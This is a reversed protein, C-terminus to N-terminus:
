DQEVPGVFDRKGLEVGNHRLIGYATTLHFYFNPLAVHALYPLGNIRVTEGGLKLEIVREESGDIEEPQLSDIFLRTSSIRARLAEFTTENDEFAPPTRGALRACAGKAFDCAIQVQRTLPFMDPYLRAELLASPEIRRAQVHSIAKDVVAALNDLMRRFVPVSMSYMSIQM